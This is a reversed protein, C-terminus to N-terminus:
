KTKRKNLTLNCNVTVFIPPCNSSASHGNSEYQTDNYAATLTATGDKNTVLNGKLKASMPKTPAMISQSETSHNKESETSVIRNAPITPPPIITVVVEIEGSEDKNKDATQANQMEKILAMPDSQAMRQWREQQDKPDENSKGIITILLNKASIEVTQEGYIQKIQHYDKGMEERNFNTSLILQGTGEVKGFMGLKMAGFDLKNTFIKLHAHQEQINNEEIQRATGYKCMFSLSMGYTLSGNWEYKDPTPVIDFTKSALLKKADTDRLPIGSEQGWDCSNFITITEKEKQEVDPAKYKLVVEDKGGVLVVWKKGDEWSKVANTIEGKELSVVIRQWPRSHRGKEDTLNTLTIPITKEEPVEDYDMKVNCNMPTREYDYILKDISPSITSSLEKVANPTTKDPRRETHGRSNGNWITYGEWVKENFQVNMLRINISYDGFADAEVYNPQGQYGEEWYGPNITDIRDLQLESFFVYKLDKFQNYNATEESTPPHGMNNCYADVMKKLIERGHSDIWGLQIPCDFRHESFDLGSLFYSEIFGSSNYEQAPPMEVPAFMIERECCFDEEQASSVFALLFFLLIAYISEIKKM